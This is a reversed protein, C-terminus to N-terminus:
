RTKLDNITPNQRGVGGGTSSSWATLLPSLPIGSALFRQTRIASKQLNNPQSAQHTALPSNSTTWVHPNQAQLKHAQPHTVITYHRPNTPPTSHRRPASHLRNLFNRSGVMYMSFGALRLFFRWWIRLIKDLHAIASFILHFSSSCFYSKIDDEM